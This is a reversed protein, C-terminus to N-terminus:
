IMMGHEASLAHIYEFFHHHPWRVSRVAVCPRSRDPRPDQRPAPHNSVPFHFVPERIRRRVGSSHSRRCPNGSPQVSISTSGVGGAIFCQAVHLSEKRRSTKCPIAHAIVCLCSSNNHFSICIMSGIFFRQHILGELRKVLPQHLCPGQIVFTLVEGLYEGGIQVLRGCRLLFLPVRATWIESSM